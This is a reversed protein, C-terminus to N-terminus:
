RQPRPTYIGKGKKGLPLSLFVFWGAGRKRVEARGFHLLLEREGEMTSRLGWAFGNVEEEIRSPFPDLVRNSLLEM